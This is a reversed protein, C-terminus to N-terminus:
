LFWSFIYKSIAEPWFNLFGVFNSLAMMQIPNLRDKVEIKSYKIAENIEDKLQLEFKMGTIYNGLKLEKINSPLGRMNIPIVMLVKSTNEVNNQKLWKKVGMSLMGVIYDNFTTNKFKKYWKQIDEFPILESIYFNTKFKDKGKLDNWKASNLDSNVHMNRWLWWVIIYPTCLCIILKQILSPEHFKKDMKIKYKDDNVWSMMAVFGVGDTFSHHMRVIVASLDGSYNEVLHFEWLPKSYDMYEQMLRNSYNIWDEQTKINEECKILQNKAIKPDIDKWFKIGFRSIQIQRLKRINMIGRQYFEERFEGFEIKKMIFYGGINHNRNPIEYSMILDGTILRQYGLIDLIYDTVYVFLILSVTGWLFGFTYYAAFLVVFHLIGYQWM